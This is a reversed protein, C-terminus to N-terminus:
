RLPAQPSLHYALVSLAHIFCAHRVRVGDPVRLTAPAFNLIAKVGADVLRDTVDQASAAPVTIIAIGANLTQNVEKVRDIDLIELDWLRRGIKDPSNDFVAAIQFNHRPLAAYGVLASGLNGAGVLLVRQESDVKLIRAIRKKLEHVKYGVGPKGFEGFYSLDKRFQAAHIGTAKEVGASSLTDIDSNELENLYRLYTALRELTPMPVRSERDM